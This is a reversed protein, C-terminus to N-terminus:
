FRGSLIREETCQFEITLSHEMGQFDVPTGDHFTFALHLKNLNQRPPTFYQKSLIKDYFLFNFSNVTLPIKGFASKGGEYGVHDTGNLEEISLLLYTHPNLSAVSTGTLTNTGTTLTEKAFGLFYALGWESAQLTTDLAMSTAGPSQISFRGTTRDVVCTFTSGFALILAAAIATCMTTFGYNGDPITILEEQENVSVLMSTNNLAASFVYFSAPIESSVLHASVVNHYQTPLDVVYSGATGSIRNRSNILLTKTVTKIPKSTSM